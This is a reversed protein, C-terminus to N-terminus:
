ANNSVLTLKSEQDNSDGDLRSSIFSKISNFTTSDEVKGNEFILMQYDKINDFTIKENDKFIKSSLYVKNNDTYLYHLNDTPSLAGLIGVATHIAAYLKVEEENVDIVKRCKLLQEFTVDNVSLSINSHEEFIRYVKSVDKEINSNEELPISIFKDNYSINNRTLSEILGNIDSLKGISPYLLVGNDTLKIAIEM